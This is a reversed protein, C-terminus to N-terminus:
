EGIIETRTGEKLAIIKKQWEGSLANFIDEDGNSLEMLFTGLLDASAQYAKIEGIVEALHLGFLAGAAVHVQVNKNIGAYRTLLKSIKQELIPEM